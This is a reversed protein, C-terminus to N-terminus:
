RTVVITSGASVANFGTDGGWTATVPYSGTKTIAKASISALGASDTTAQYTVKNFVFTVTRGSLPSGTQDTLVAALPVAIGVKVTGAGAWALSPDFKPAPRPAPVNAAVQRLVTTTRNAIWARTSAFHDAISGSIVMTAYPDAELAAQLSPQIRAFLDDIAASSLPGTSALLGSVIQNYRTRFTGHDLILKQFDSQTYTVVGRKNTTSSVSYINATPARFVSDLDWPYYRRLTDGARDVFHFNKGKPFLADDNALFADVAGETLMADVDVLSSLQVLLDADSPAPCTATGASRFPVYCLADFTPSDPVTGDTSAAPGQDVVPLGIDDQEYLWSAGSTWLGRNKLFQKNRQEVSTYVGLPEGNVTVTAWSALAPDYDAGYFGEVGALQHLQWALGEHLPSVDGGNELSLKTVGRYQQGSVFDTFGVKLGVKHPDAESPLARSSKRRVGVLYTAGDVGDIVETFRAPLIITNSTDERVVDWAAAVALPRLADDTVVVADRDGSTMSEWGEPAIWGEPPTWADSSSWGALPDFDIRFDRVVSPDYLEHVLAPVAVVPSTILLGAVLAVLARPVFHGPRGVM